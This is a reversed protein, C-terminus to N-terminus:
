SEKRYAVNDSNLTQGGGKWAFWTNATAGGDVALTQGSVYSSLDSALFLIAKAIEDPRGIRELPVRQRLDREREPTVVVRATEIGGPSVANVRINPGWECAMSRVLNQLGAKAAGYHAHLPGAMMGSSSSVAVIAGSRGGAEMSRAVATAALFFGKLNLDLVWDWDEERMETLKCWHSRGIVSVMVDVPGLQAEASRTAEEVSAAQTIDATLAVARRGMARISEAVELAREEVVDVVGIDCGAQALRLASAEGIGQGGGWVLAVKNNLEFM